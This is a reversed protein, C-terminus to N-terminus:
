SRRPPHLSRRPSPAPCGRGTAFRGSSSDRSGYGLATSGTPHRQRRRRLRPSRVPCIPRSSRRSEEGVLDSREECSLSTV